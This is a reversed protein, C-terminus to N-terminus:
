PPTVRPEVSPVPPASALVPTTRPVPPPTPAVQQQPPAVPAVPAPKAFSAELEAIAEELKVRQADAAQTDIASNAALMRELASRSSSYIRGRAEADNQAGQDAIAKSILDGFGAM